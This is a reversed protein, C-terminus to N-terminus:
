ETTDMPTHADDVRLSEQAVPTSMMEADEQVPADAPQEVEATVARQEPVPVPAQTATSDTHAAALQDRKVDLEIMLRRLNDEFRKKLIPNSARAIEARKRAIAGECDKIEDQALKIRNRLAKTQEDVEEDEDEEDDSGSEEDGFLGADEDEEEDDAAKKARADDAASGMLGAAIEAALGDDYSNDSDDEEDDDNRPTAATVSEGRDSMGEYAPTMAQSPTQAESVGEEDQSSDEDHSLMELQTEDANADATLLREVNREVTEITRKNVRHRFRRKRVHYLPPTLGHPYVFDEINFPQGDTAASEDSIRDEVLLMQCIDASKFLHKNDLTKNAEIICPLDVLKARYLHKGIGMTARRSDKFKFYVSPDVERRNVLERLKEADSNAPMRLIFQDEYAIPEDPDSDLSGDYGASRNLNSTGGSNGAGLKLKLKSPAARRTPKIKRQPRPLAGFPQSSPGAVPAEM